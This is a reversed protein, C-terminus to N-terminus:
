IYVYIYIYTYVSETKTIGNKRREPNFFLGSGAGFEVVRTGPKMMAVAHAALSAVQARKRASRGDQHFGQELAEASRASAGFSM